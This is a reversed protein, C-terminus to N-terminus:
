QPIERRGLWYENFALHVVRRRVANQRAVTFVDAYRNYGDMPQSVCMCRKEQKGAYGYCAYRSSEAVCTHGGGLFGIKVDNLLKFVLVDVDDHSGKGGEYLGCWYVM